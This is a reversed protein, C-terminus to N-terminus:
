APRRRPCFSVFCLCAYSVAARLLPWAALPTKLTCADIEEKTIRGDKDADVDALVKAALKEAEQLRANAISVCSSVLSRVLTATAPNCGLGPLQSLIVTDLLEEVAGHGNAAAAACAFAM